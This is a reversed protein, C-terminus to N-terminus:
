ELGAEKFFKKAGPHYPLGLNFNIRKPNFGGFARHSAVLKKKNAYLAKVVKYVVEDPTKTSANVIFPAVLVNTPETVGVFVRAPKITEIVAGPAIRGLIAITRASKEMSLVRIGGVSANAQRTKGSALSWNVADVKGAMFDEVSRVGNPVPVGKVDKMTLGVTAMMAEGFLGSIRQKTFESPLRKGKLDAISRISSDKRVFWAVQLPILSAAVRVNEHKRGKFMEGGNLSFATVVSVSITFDLKGDNLLPLTVVPGGQPVVRMRVGAAEIAVKAVGAGAAYSLSGQPNTGISVTQATASDAVLFAGLASVIARTIM